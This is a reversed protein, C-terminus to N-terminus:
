IQKERLGGGDSARRGASPRGEGVTPHLKASHVEALQCVALQEVCPRATQFLQIASAYDSRVVVRDSVDGFSQDCPM